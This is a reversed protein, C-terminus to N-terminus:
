FKISKKRNNKYSLLIQAKDLVYETAYEQLNEESVEKSFDFYKSLEKFKIYIKIGM